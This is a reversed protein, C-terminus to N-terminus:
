RELLKSLLFEKVDQKFMAESEENESSFPAEFDDLTGPLKAKLKNIEPILDSQILEEFDFSDIANLLSVFPTDSASLQEIIIQSRTSFKVKELWIGMSTSLLRFQEEWNEQEAILQNHCPCVGCLELRVALIRNGILGLEDEFRAKVSNIIGSPEYCSSLDVKCLHWRLVDLEHDETNVVQADDVSILEAGKAGTERIHRGQINGPFVIYPERSIIERNHVHGLAWYDYGKAKLTDPSCPAYPEHNVRGTLSTHLLGINFHDRIKEPYGAALDMSVAKAPYGQGHIAVALDDLYYTKPSSSPFFIINDPLHMTRYIVSGADHNGSVMFIKINNRKLEAVRELFYLATNFDKWSSDFVDGALLIFSVQKDIALKILNEFARRSANRIEDVRADEYSELGRLPSDLHIDAAHIFKFMKIGQTGAEERIVLAKGV